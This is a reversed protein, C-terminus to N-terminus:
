NALPCINCRGERCYNRFIHILGQQHCATFDAMDELCLQRAMHRTIENEALRPYNRYLHLAKEKLEPMGWSFTFPLVVNVIIEGAKSHGLLASNKTRARGDFDFHDQWYGDGAVILASELVRHRTILPTEKVLQLIGMLLGGQYYRQLLHSLAVIRRVPSNNPYIHSFNWDNGRMTKAEKDVSQWVQELKRTEEAQCFEGKLRQSPLLGATGLLWAQKLVLSERPEISEIFNLPVRCALEEFPKMNKSYGLARLWSRWLVQKAEERQLETQFIAAKQKFREEGAINLLNRLAQLQQAEGERISESRESCPKGQHASARFSSFLLNKPRKAGESHCSAFPESSRSVAIVNHKLIQSCPLQRYPMLYAQHRLTKSLCLLPVLKGNQLLIASNYDHWMVVHLIVNNYEANTHHEHSYWDSSKVHIEVDGRMLNPGIGIVADRFDPGSDGNLRGPYIIRVREGEETALEKGVLRQWMLVVQREPLKIRNRTIMLM